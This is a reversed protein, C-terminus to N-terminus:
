PAREVGKKFIKLIVERQIATHSHSIRIKVGNKKAVKLVIFSLSNIHSHVISYESHYKFFEELDQIYKTYSFPHIPNLKYIKGGLGLIEDDFAGKEKRHLLFDFQVKTRDINRYYNMIMSEAGGRNMITLIQLIRVPQNNNPNELM